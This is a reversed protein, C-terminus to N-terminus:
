IHSTKNNDNTNNNNTPPINTSPIKGAREGGLRRGMIPKLSRRDEKAREGERETMAVSSSKHFVFRFNQCFIHIKAELPVTFEM